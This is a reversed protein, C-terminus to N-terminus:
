REPAAKSAGQTSPQTVLQAVRQIVRSPLENQVQPLWHGGSYAFSENIRTLNGQQDRYLQTQYDNPLCWNAPYLIDFTAVVQGDSIDLLKGVFHLAPSSFTYKQESSSAYYESQTTETFTSSGPALVFFRSPTEDSWQWTGIQLIGDAGTQEAMVLARETDSLTQAGEVRRSDTEQSEYVVRGTISSSVITLDNKLFEKEFLSIISDFQGRATGSPPIVILREYQKSELRSSVVNDELPPKEAPMRIVYPAACSTLGLCAATICILLTKTKM